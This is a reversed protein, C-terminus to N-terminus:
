ALQLIGEANWTITIDSGNPTKPFGGTDIHAIPISDADTTVFKFLVAAVVTEAALQSVATFTVDAADFEARDNVDDQSTVEGTLVGDSRLYGTSSLETTGARALVAALTADDPNVDSNAELLIVRIDNPLDFDLTADLLAKKAVNYTFAAM